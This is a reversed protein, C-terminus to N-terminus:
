NGEDAQLLEVSPRDIALTAAYDSFAVFHNYTASVEEEAAELAYQERLAVKLIDSEGVEFKRREIEAMRTALLVARRANLAELRSQILGAYATQVEASVKDQVMTRKATVQAIKGQVAQMKGLGKRRQVPVEFFM